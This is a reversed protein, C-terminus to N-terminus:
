LSLNEGPQLIVVRVEPAIRGAHEAFRRGPAEFMWPWLRSAGFPALTGWHVPVALRPRLMTLARAASEPDLHGPGLTPGWGWVPLLAVDLDPGMQAMAPFLATDGAFYIRAEAEVLYGVAGSRGIGFIRGGAHSAEVARVRIGALETSEGPALEVVAGFGRRRLFARAGPPAVIPLKKGLERLSALDLHDPHLHSILIGDVPGVGARDLGRRRRLFGLVHGGLLPDTILRRGGLELVVTSHGAFTIAPRSAGNVRAEDGARIYTM